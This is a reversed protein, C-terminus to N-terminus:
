DIEVLVNGSPLVSFRGDPGVVLTSGAEEVLAPGAAHFGAPLTSREYVTTPIPANGFRAVRQRTEVARTAEHQVDQTSAPREGRVVTRAHVLDIPVSPPTRKYRTRYAAVFAETVMAKVAADDAPWPARALPVPMFSGQGVCRADVMRDIVVTGTDWGGDRLLQRSQMELGAFVAELDASTMGDLRRGLTIVRDVRPPASLMGIASAVGADAPVIMRRVGLKRALSYGHVPGGGGTCVLTFSRADRGREALHTRAAGAMSETVVEHIGWATADADLGITEGLRGVAAEAAPRSLPVDGGAFREPDYYGLLLNADTVTPATGGRAYCAPGPDSGVSDPGVKLLGISDRRAISGGGAGIEILDVTSIRIPLGSGEIFRSQRAAEFGFVVEPEGNEVACLKATTGGMDFALLRAEEDGSLTAAALAGAAPGSELLQVPARRAEGIHTLGGNSLMMLLPTEAGIGLSAMAAGFRALYSQALPAIFANAVATSGREYERVERVIGHSTTVSIHPFHKAIHAAAQEEHESHLDAHLFLIAVATAGLAVAEEVRARVAELNLPRLVEGNAKVREDVEFRLAPAVLPAPMVLGLDYLDYRRERATGILDRFGRTTILATVAGKREILANAFLTTAHVVRTVSAPAVGHEGLLRASGALIGQLPDQHTTLVKLSANAGAGRLVLDTFTGGIDIGLSVTM